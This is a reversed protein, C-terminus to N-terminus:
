GKGKILVCLKGFIAHEFYRTLLLEYRSSTEQLLGIWTFNSNLQFRPFSADM